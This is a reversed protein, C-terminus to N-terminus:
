RIKLFSHPHEMQEECTECFNFNECVSCKYRITKIPSIQCGDCTVEHTEARVEKSEELEPLNDPGQVIGNDLMLKNFLIPAQKELEFQILHKLANRPM